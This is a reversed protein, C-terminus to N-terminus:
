TGLELIRLQFPEGALDPLQGLAALLDRMDQESTDSLVLVVRRVADPQGNEHQEVAEINIGKDGFFATLHSLTGPEHRLDLRLYRRCGYRPSAVLQCGSLIGLHESDSGHRAIDVVDALVASATAAGGAGAGRLFQDGAADCAFLVANLEARVQALASFEPLLALHVRAEIQGSAAAPQAVALHRIRYGFKAAMQFDFPELGPLGEKGVSSLQVPTGFALNSLIALKQAADSGDIDLTPDAEAFGLRQAEALAADFDRGEEMQSLIFNCTGNLIGYIGHVEDSGFSTRLARLLPIAGGVAAEAGIRLGRERAVAGLEEGRDALLAKNATILHKGAALTAHAIDAATDTGGILEVVADIDSLEPIDLVTDCQRLDLGKPLRRTSMAVIEIRVGFRREIEEARERWLQYFAQAVTGWGCIGLRLVAM